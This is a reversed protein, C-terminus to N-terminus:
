PRDLIAVFEAMKPKVKEIRLPSFDAKWKYMGYLETGCMILVNCRLKERIKTSM